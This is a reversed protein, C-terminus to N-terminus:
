TEKKPERRQMIQGTEVNIIEIVRHFPIFIVDEDVKYEFGSSGVVLILDCSISKQDKPAGRHIFTLEYDSSNEKPDWLLKNL